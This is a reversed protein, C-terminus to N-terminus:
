FQATYVKGLNPPVADPVFFHPQLRVHSPPTRPCPTLPPGRVLLAIRCRSNNCRIPFTRRPCRKLQIRSPPNPMFCCTRDYRCPSRIPPPDLSSSPRPSLTLPLTAAPRLPRPPPYPIAARVTVPPYHVCRLVAAIAYPTYCHAAPELITHSVPYPTEDFVRHACCRSQLRSIDICMPNHLSYPVQALYPHRAASSLKQLTTSPPPHHAIQASFTACCFETDTCAPVCPPPCAAETPGGCPIAMAGQALVLFLLASSIFKNLM